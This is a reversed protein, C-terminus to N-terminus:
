PLFDGANSINGGTPCFTVSSLRVAITHSRQPQICWIIATNKQCGGRWDFQPYIYVLIVLLDAGRDATLMSKDHQDLM